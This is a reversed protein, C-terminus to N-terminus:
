RFPLAPSSAKPRGGYSGSFKLSKFVLIVSDGSDLLIKILDSQRGRFVFFHGSFPSQSLATQILASLGHMGPRMDTHGAAIWIHACPGPSMM